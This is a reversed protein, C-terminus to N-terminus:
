KLSKCGRHTCPLRSCVLFKCVTQVCRHLPTYISCTCLNHESPHPSPTNRPHTFLTYIPYSSHPQMGDAGVEYIEEPISKGQGQGQGQGMEGDDRTATTNPTSNGNSPKNLPNLPPNSNAGRSASHPGSGLGAAGSPSMMPSPAAGHFSSGMTPTLLGSSSGHGSGKDRDDVRATSLMSHNVSSNYTTASTTYETSAASAAAALGSQKSKNSSSSERNLVVSAMLVGAAASLDDM